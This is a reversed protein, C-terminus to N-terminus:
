HEKMPKKIKETDLWIPFDMPEQENMEEDHAAADPSVQSVQSTIIGIGKPSFDFLDDLSFIARFDQPLFFQEFKKSLENLRKLYYPVNEDPFNPDWQEVLKCNKFGVVEAESGTIYHSIRSGPKWQVGASIAVEYNATRNRKGTGADREYREQSDRLTETRALDRIDITHNIISTYLDVHLTHLKEINGDLLCHICQEIYTRGFREMSRSILSSGKITMKGDYGLLAYNKKKYSLMKKYRGGINLRITNPLKKAIHHLFEGEANQTQVEHPPIFFIGDTDVEVVKGRQRRIEDVLLRLIHQGRSTVADARAYDNFLGKAYGLYGYFSNILIKYSSQLADLRSKEHPEAASNMKKKADLRMETLRNLLSPFVELTDTEPAIHESIMISPYLSEIDAYIIPGVIGTYFLDTYGGMQQVGIGPKPLSYKQRVYERVFLSEIKAASGSRALIGYNLPVMQTLYFSSPSLIESLRMVEHVDDLAYRILIDPKNDWYWWIQDGKIYIRDSRAVGFYRAAYKVSYSEVNRKAIDYSKLLTMTDIIHRGAIEYTQEGTTEVFGAKREIPKPVSGDRSIKFEVGERECRRLIYPLDFNDINHGEIIDPDKEQIVRVLETLMEKESQKKGDITHEWGRNDTLAIIIIRDETRFPDNRHSPHKFYTEIDIQLRHLDHFEMGKFLTKGSQILFQSLPDPRLHLVPLELYNGVKKLANKNFREIIHRVAEWMDSWRSFVCLYPYFNNGSLKKIWHQATYESLLSSDSLFFFPFFECDETIIKKGQRVFLRMLNDGAQHVAIIREQPDHGYLLADISM